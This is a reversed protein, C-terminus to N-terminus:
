DLSLALAAEFAPDPATLSLEEALLYELRSTGPFHSLLESSCEFALTSGPAYLRVARLGEGSTVPAFTVSPAGPLRLRLWAALYVATSPPAPPAHQLEIHEVAGAQAEQDPDDFVELVEALALRWPTLRTWALDALAADQRLLARASRLMVQWNGIPTSDLILKDALSVLEGCPRGLAGADRLWAVVPLDAVTLGRVVPALDSLAEATAGIEIQECCIRTRRSHALSCRATVEAELRRGEDQIRGIVVARFPHALMLEALSGALAADNPPGETFVLLTMACARLLETEEAAALTRWLEDLRNLISDAHIAARTV